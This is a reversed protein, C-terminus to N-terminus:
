ARAEEGSRLRRSRVLVSLGLFVALYVWVPWAPGGEGRLASGLGDMAVGAPLIAGIERLSDPFFAAPYFCGALYGQVVAAFFVTMIGGVTSDALEYLLFSLACLMLAVPLIGAAFRWLIATGGEAIEPIALGLGGSLGGLLAGACLVGCIM